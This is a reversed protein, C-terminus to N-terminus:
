SSSTRPSSLVCPLEMTVTTPGGPPSTVTMSGDFTGLRRQIGRLGTGRAPDAGGRGDDFVTVRLVGDRHRLDLRIRGAAAHRAANALLEAVAFYVASEVPPDLRGPLDVEVTTPLPTDLALARVADALGREALVPPHIGRVLDRLEQLARLSTERARGILEKAAEPDRDILAEVASLHLGLAVLRAQAGDHLDREIRRLEAAQADVAQARTEALRQVRLALRAKETPKLLVATWRNALRVCPGVLWVALAVLATGVPVALWPSGAFAGYWDSPEDAFPMWLLPLLLGHLGYVALALPVLLLAGTVFPDAFMWAFDRWTAPDTFIWKWRRNFAIMRPTEYVENGDRYLGDVDPLPAPPRPRYPTDIRVGSWRNALHRRLNPLWRSHEVLPPFVFVLGLPISLVLGVVHVVFFGLALLSLGLLALGRVIEEGVNVPRPKRGSPRLLLRTWRGHLRLCAPAIVLGLLLGAVGCGARAAVPLDTTASVAVGAVPLAWPALLPLGGVFPNLLLWLNDRVNAPDSSLWRMRALYAPFRPSRYTRSGGRYRGDPGPVPPPPPPLYPADIRIGAWRGALRRGLDALARALRVPGPWGCLLAALVVALVPLGVLTLAFLVPARVFALFARRVPPLAM